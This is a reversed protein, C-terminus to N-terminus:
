FFFISDRNLRKHKKLKARSPKLVNTSLKYPKQFSYIRLTSIIPYQFIIASKSLRRSKTLRCPDHNM